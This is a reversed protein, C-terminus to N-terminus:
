AESTLGLRVATVAAQSRNKVGLRRFLRTLYFKVTVEQLNMDRAIEKNSAGAVVKRLLDLERPSFEGADQQAEPESVGSPVSPAGIGVFETPVYTGGHLVVSLADTFVRGEMTKPLFGRAGAGICATVDRASAVGSMVVVPAGGALAIARSIGESGNMGPMSYDLMVVDAPEEALAVLVLELSSFSRIESRRFARSIRRSVADLYLPHDDALLVRMVRRVGGCFYLKDSGICM